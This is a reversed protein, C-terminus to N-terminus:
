IQLHKNFFEKVREQALKAAAENYRERTENAFGHDANEYRYFEYPVNNDKLAKELSDAAEPDAFGKAQDLQAFHAQVPVKSQGPDALEKKPVGYFPVSANLNDCRVAAAIALAGGM